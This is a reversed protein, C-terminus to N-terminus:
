KQKSAKAVKAAELKQQMSSLVDDTTYYLGTREAQELSALGRAIFEAQSKRIEVQKRVAEEIFGSLTEGERLVSEAKERFEPEVRLPPLTATKM